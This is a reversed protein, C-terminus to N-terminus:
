VKEPTTCRALAKSLTDRCVGLQKARTTITTRRSSVDHYASTIQDPTLKRPRGIAAGRNRAAQMGEKTRKILIQREYQAFAAMVTYVLEGEPTSTDVNLTVIQFAIGRARLKEAELLADVTSRFARDLDWVVLTDGSQLNAIVTDYVLRKMATASIIEIHLEDCLATLGDIQRDPRQEETSVRLYGIRALEM